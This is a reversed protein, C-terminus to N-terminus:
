IQTGDSRFYVTDRIKAFGPIVGEQPVDATMLDISDVMHIIFVKIMYPM